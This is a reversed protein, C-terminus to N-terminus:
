RCDATEPFLLLDGAGCATYEDKAEKPTRTAQKKLWKSTRRLSKNEVHQIIRTLARLATLDLDHSFLLEPREEVMAMLVQVTHLAAAYRCKVEKIRDHCDIRRM